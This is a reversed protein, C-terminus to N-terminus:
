KHGARLSLAMRARCDPSPRPNNVEKSETFAPKRDISHDHRNSALRSLPEQPTSERDPRTNM